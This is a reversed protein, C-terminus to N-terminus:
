ILLWRRVGAADAQLRTLAVYAADCTDSWGLEAAIKWAMDQLVRDGLLRMKRGRIDDLRARATAEDLRGADVERYLM